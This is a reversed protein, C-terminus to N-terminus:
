RLISTRDKEWNDVMLKATATKPQDIYGFVYLWFDLTPSAVRMRRRAETLASEYASILKHGTRPDIEQRIEEKRDRTVGGSYFEEILAQSEDDYTSYVVNTINLYGRIYQKMIEDRKLELPTSNKHVWDLFQEQLEPPVADLVAQRKLTYMLYDPEVEGTHPNTRDEVQVDYWFSILTDMPGQQYPVYGGTKEILLAIGEPSNSVMLQFEEDKYKPNITNLDNISTNYRDWISSHESKFDSPTLPKTTGTPHLFRNEADIEEAIRRNSITGMDNYYQSVLIKTDQISPPALMEAASGVFKWQWMQDLQQRIGLPMGGMVDSPRIGHERMYKMQAPTFGYSEYIKDVQDQITKTETPSYSIYAFEARVLSLLAVYQETSDWLAQEETTLPLKTKIKEWLDTGNIGGALTGGAKLQTENVVVAKYYDRFNDHFITNQLIQAANSVGPIKSLILANLGVKHLGPLLSGLEPYQGSLMPSLYAATMIFPNPSFAFRQAADVIESLPGMDEYYSAYDQKALQFLPGLVTGSLAGFALDWGIGFKGQDTNEYFRAWADVTGPHRVATRALWTWRYTNYKWYPFLM